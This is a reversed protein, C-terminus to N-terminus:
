VGSPVAETRTEDHARSPPAQQSIRRGGNIMAAVWAAALAAFLLRVAIALAPPGDNTERLLYRTEAEFAMARDELPIEELDFLPDAPMRIPVAMMDSGVHLRLVAKWPGHVEIPEEAVYRGGGLPQMHAVTNGGGQWAGAYFWRADEAADPPDLQAHVLALGDGQEEVTMQVSVDGVTRPFPIAIALGVVMLAAALMRGSVHTGSGRIVGAYATAVVAAAIAAPIGVVLVDPLLSTTWPQHAGANWWWETALGVTSIGLGALVAFRVPRRTGALLAVAEVVLASGILIASDRTEVPASGALLATDLNGAFWAIALVGLTWGRGLVLRIAVLAAASAILVLVPHYLQQFQPVGFDFEGLPAFLAVVVTMATVAHLATARRSARPRVRAEALVLWAGTSSLAAGLIMLMHPASWMTVDVGYQNHWLEDIGFGAVAGSGLVILPILSWPVQVGSLRTGEKAGTLNAVLIGAAASAAIFSVGIFIAAHPATFLTEDRGYAVHYAVDTFFGYAAIVLGGLTGAWATAAWAPMGTLKALQNPLRLLVRAVPSRHEGPEGRLGLLLMVSAVVGLLIVLPHWEAIASGGALEGSGQAVLAVTNM